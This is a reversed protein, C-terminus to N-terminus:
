EDLSDGGESGIDGAKSFSMRSEILRSATTTLTDIAAKPLYYEVLNELSAFEKGALLTVQAMNIQELFSKLRNDICYAIIVLHTSPIALM